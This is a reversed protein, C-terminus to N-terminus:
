VSLPRSVPYYRPPPPPPQRWREAYWTAVAVALVLDDHAGERWAGYTDNGTETIKMRFAMMEAVLTSISPLGAAFKLREGQLLVQLVGVLDRKPVHWMSGDGTVTSRSTITVAIPALRAQCLMDVVPRGVGTADVVLATERQAVAAALAPTALLRAVHDVVAPYSTGLTLRELHRCHYRRTSVLQTEPVAGDPGDQSELVSVATYDAAQGLDLGIIFRVRTQRAAVAKERQAAVMQAQTMRTYPM